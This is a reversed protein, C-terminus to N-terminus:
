VAARALEDGRIVIPDGARLFLLDDIAADEGVSERSDAM